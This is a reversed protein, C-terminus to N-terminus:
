SEEKDTGLENDLRRWNAESLAKPNTHGTSKIAKLRDVSNMSDLQKIVRAKVKDLPPIVIAAQSDIENADTIAQDMIQMERNDEQGYIDWAIGFLSACKKIADSTAAKHDNGFDVLEDTKKKVGGVLETKYKIPARGYQSKSLTKGNQTHITLKGRIIIQDHAEKEELVDFDWQYGTTLNLIGIVYSTEVFKAKSGGPIPREKIFKPPTRQMLLNIQKESFPLDGIMALFDKQDISVVDYAQKKAAM